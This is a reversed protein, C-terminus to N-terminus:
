RKESVPAAPGSVPRVSRTFTVKPKITITFKLIDEALQLSRKFGEMKEPSLEFVFSVVYGERAKKVPYGLFRKGLETRSVVKGEHKKIVEEFGNKGGGQLGEVLTQSPFIILAEYTKM